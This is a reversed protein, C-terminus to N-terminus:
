KRIITRYEEFDMEGNQAMYALKLALRGIESVGTQMIKNKLYKSYHQIYANDYINSYPNTKIKDSYKKRHGMDRCLKANMSHIKDIIVITLFSCYKTAFKLIINKSNKIIM